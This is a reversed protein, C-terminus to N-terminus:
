RASSSRQTKSAGERGLGFLMTEIQFLKAVPGAKSGADNEVLQFVIWRADRGAIREALRMHWRRVGKRDVRLAIKM